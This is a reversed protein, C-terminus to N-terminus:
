VNRDVQWYRYPCCEVVTVFVYWFRYFDKTYIGRQRIIDQFIICDHSLRPFSFCSNPRKYFLSSDVLFPLLKQSADFSLILKRMLCTPQKFAGTTLKDNAARSEASQSYNVAPIVSLFFLSFTLSSWIYHSSRNTCNTTSDCNNSWSHARKRCEGEYLASVRKTSAEFSSKSNRRSM